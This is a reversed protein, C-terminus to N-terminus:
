GLMPLQLIDKVWRGCGVGPQGSLCLGCQAVCGAMCESFTRKNGSNNPHRLHQPAWQYNANCFLLSVFTHLFTEELFSPCIYPHHM